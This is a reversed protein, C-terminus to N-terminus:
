TEQFLFQPSIQLQLEEQDMVIGREVLAHCLSSDSSFNCPDAKEKKSKQLSNGVNFWKLQRIATSIYSVLLIKELNKNGEKYCCSIFSRKHM